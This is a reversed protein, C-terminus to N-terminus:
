LAPCRGETWQVWRGDDLGAANAPDEEVKGEMRRGGIITRLHLSGRM